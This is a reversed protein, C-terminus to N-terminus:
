HGQMRMGAIPGQGKRAGQQHLNAAVEQSVIQIESYTTKGTIVQHGAVRAVDHGHMCNICTKATPMAQIRAIEIQNGCQTCYKSPPTLTKM